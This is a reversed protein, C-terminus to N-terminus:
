GLYINLFDEILERLRPGWIPGADAGTPFVRRAPITVSQVFLVGTVARPKKLRKGRSGFVTMATVMPIALAKGNKAKITAGETLVRAGIFNSGVQFGDPLPDTTFSGLFRGTVLMIRGGRGFAPNKDLWPEGDGSRQAEFGETLLSKAEEALNENLDAIGQQDLSALKVSLEEFVVTPATFSAGM